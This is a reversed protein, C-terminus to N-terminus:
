RNEKPSSARNHDLWHLLKASRILVRRGVRTVGPLQGREVMSYIGKPTTRLLSAAEHVKLLMPMSDPTM